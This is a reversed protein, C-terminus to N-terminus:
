TVFVFMTRCAIGAIVPRCGSTACRGLLQGTRPGPQRREPLGPGLRRLQPVAALLRRLADPLRRRPPLAPPPRQHAPRRVPPRAAPAAAAAGARDEPPEARCSSWLSSHSGSTNSDSPTNSERAAVVPCTAGLDAPAPLVALTCLCVPSTPPIAARRLATVADALRASSFLRKLSAHGVWHCQWARVVAVVQLCDAGGGHM